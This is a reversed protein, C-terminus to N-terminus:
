REATQESSTSHDACSFSSATNTDGRGDWVAVNPYACLPRSRVVTRERVLSAEIRSPPIGEEVWKVLPAVVDFTDPGDGGSCHGVGPAM